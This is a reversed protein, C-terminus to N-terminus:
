ESRPSLLRFFADTGLAPAFNVTQRYAFAPVEHVRQWPGAPSRSSELLYTKAPRADFWLLNRSYELRLADASDRPDTGTVYEALNSHGDSDADGNAADVNHTIEWDDPLGDGDSDALVTLVANSSVPSSGALNTVGVTIILPNTPQLNTLILFCNTESLIMNTITLAGRRWRYSLPLPNGTVSVSFTVSGGAPASQSVPQITIAPRILVVLPANSSLAPGFANTVSASYIGEDLLQVNKISLSAHTANPLPVGSKYWQYAFPGPGIAVVKFVVNSTPRSFVPQPQRTIIPPSTLLDPEVIKIFQNAPIDAFEQRLGSPWEIRLQEAHSADGLGFSARPDNQSGLGDGGSIHRLQWFQRGGITAQLRVKAGIASRNSIRGELEVSLWRNTNGDNRYLYATQNQHHTVVLDQFGDNNIDGWAAAFASGSDTAPPGTTVRTFMGDRNNQYLLSQGGNVAVFLDLWGNNDYDAWACGMHAATQTVMPANTIRSFQGGGNNRYLWNRNNPNAVFLDLRGDNDYDAWAAGQSVGTTQAIVNDTVKLFQGGGRNQYLLSPSNIRSVFLDILGDDDYDAWAAGQSNGPELAVANTTVRHFAGNGENHFLFDNQDSNAAFVDLLGDQDYDAWSVNNANGGIAPFQQATLSTFVGNSSRLLLDNGGSNMGVLLDPWGDNDLDGWAAGFTPNGTTALAGNTIRTFSGNGNNTYAFGTGSGAGLYLDLWGDRNFDAFAASTTATSLMVPDSTLKTFTSLVVFLQAFKM